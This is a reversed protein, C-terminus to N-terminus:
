RSAPGRPRLEEDFVRGRVPHTEHRNMGRFTVPAGNVLLRDGEIACPGSASGSAHGDRRDSTVTADYLRPRSRPGRSSRDSRSAASSPRRPSADPEVGLEPIAVTVPYAAPAPSWSRTSRASARGRVRHAALRRRARRRPRGLLTVDRFIGPLWWQDQDELYSMSSWQHVRVALVNDGPRLADTVDFEQVLRSGKGIGVEDGNLWVRYVSEVGDFRLLVRECTGTRAPSARRHDGTPNEDPVHPPDIPFPYQVNTYIPRGRGAAPRRRRAPGLALPRRDSQGAATTSAPTPSRSTSASPPRRGAPVAVDGDLSLQPADTDLWARAPSRRGSGPSLDELYGTM